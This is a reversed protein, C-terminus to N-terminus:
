KLQHWATGATKDDKSTSNLPPAFSDYTAKLDMLRLSSHDSLSASKESDLIGDSRILCVNRLSSKQSTCGPGPPYGLLTLSQFPLMAEAAEPRVCMCFVFCVRM